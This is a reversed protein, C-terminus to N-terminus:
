YLSRQHECRVRTTRRRPVPVRTPRLVGDNWEACRGMTLADNHATCTSSVPVATATTLLSLSPPRVFRLSSLSMAWRSRIAPPATAAHGIISTEDMSGGDDRVTTSPMATSSYATAGDGSRWDADPDDDESSGCNRGASRGIVFPRGGSIWHSVQRFHRTTSPGTSPRGEVQDQPSQATPSSSQAILADAMTPNSRSSGIGDLGRTTWM